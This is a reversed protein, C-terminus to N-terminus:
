TMDRAESPSLEGRGAAQAIADMAKAVGEISTTDPLEVEICRPASSPRAHVYPAAASAAWRRCAPDLSADNVAQLLYALPSIGGEPIAALAESRARNPTGARRGGTKKGQAM